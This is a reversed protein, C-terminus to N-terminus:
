LMSIHGGGRYFMRYNDFAHKSQHKYSDYVTVYGYLNVIKNYCKSNHAVPWYVIGYFYSGGENWKGLATLLVHVLCFTKWSIQCLIFYQHQHLHWCFIDVSCHWNSFSIKKSSFINHCLLLMILPDFHLAYFYVFYKGEIDNISLYM